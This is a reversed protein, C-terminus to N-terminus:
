FKEMQYETYKLLSYRFSIVTFKDKQAVYLLLQLKKVARANNKWKEELSPFLIIIYLSVKKKM